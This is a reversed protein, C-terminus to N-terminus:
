DCDDDDDDDHNYQGGSRLSSTMVDKIQRRKRPDEELTSFIAGSESLM